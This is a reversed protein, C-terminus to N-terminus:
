PSDKRDTQKRSKTPKAEQRDVLHPVLHIQMEEEVLLLGEPSDKQHEEEAPLMHDVAEAEASDMRRGEQQGKHLHLEEQAEKPDM